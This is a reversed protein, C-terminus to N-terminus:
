RRAKQWLVVFYPRLGDPTTRKITFNRRDGRKGTVLLGRRYLEQKLAEDQAEDGAIEMFRETPIRYEVPKGDKRLVYGELVGKGWLQKEPVNADIFRRKRINDNVSKKLLEFPAKAPIAKVLAKPAGQAAISRLPTVGLEQDSFAVHDRHCTLLAKLIEPESFPLIKFRVALCGSVYLTAFKNSIRGLDRDGSSEVNAAADHYAENREDVFAQIANRDGKMWGALRRVFEPGALGFNERALKRLQNGYARFEVKTRIGEFFYRCGAPLGFEMLRDILPIILKPRKIGHLLQVVSENSSSLVPTCFEARRADTSRGRGEGNMANHIAKIETEGANHMDDLYLFMQDFAGGLVEFNIGTNNWSVGCGIKRTPNRDGGWVTSTVRGITTNGMGGKSVLQLGPPEDGFAGCVPGSLALCLGTVLRSKGRCMKALELWGRVSGEGHLRRHYRGYRWDFYREINAEGKPALGEPFVFEGDFWGTKTAVKLTLEARAADHARALFESRAQSKILPEGLRTLIKLEGSNPAAINDVNLLATKSGVAVKLFREEELSVGVGLFKIRHTNPYTKEKGGVVDVATSGAHKPHTKPSMKTVQKM